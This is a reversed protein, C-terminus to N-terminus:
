YEGYMVYALKELCEYKIKPFTITSGPGMEIRLNFPTLWEDDSIRVVDQSLAIAKIQKLFAVVDEFTAANKMPYTIGPHSNRFTQFARLTPAFVDPVIDYVDSYKRVEVYAAQVLMYPMNIKEALEKVSKAGATCNDYHM